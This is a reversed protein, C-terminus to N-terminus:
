IEIKIGPCLIFELKIDVCFIEDLGDFVSTEPEPDFITKWSAKRADGAELRIIPNIDPILPPM